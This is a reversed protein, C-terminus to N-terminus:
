EGWHAPPPWLLRGRKLFFPSSLRRDRSACFCLFTKVRERESFFMLSMRTNPSKFPFSPASVSCVCLFFFVRLKFVSMLTFVPYIPLSSFNTLSRDSFDRLCNCRAILIHITFLQFLCFTKINNLCNLLCAGTVWPPPQKSRVATVCFVIFKWVYIIILSSPYYM